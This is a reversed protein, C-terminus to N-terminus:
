YDLALSVFHYSVFFWAMAVCAMAALVDSAKSWWPRSTDRWAVAVEWLPVLTAVVAVLTLLELMRLLGDNATSFQSLDSQGRLLFTLWAGIAIIQLTAVARTLRYLVAARGSYPFPQGYRWRLLAKVPWFIVVLVLTLLASGILPLAVLPSQWFPVPQLVLIQPFLDLSLWRVKGGELRAALLHRGGEEQWVFPATEIWRTPGGLYGLAPVNLVGADDVSTWIPESLTGASMFNTISRRSLVYSGAVLAGDAKANEIARAKQVPPGPFYRDMFRSLLMTRLNTIPSAEAGRSNLSVFLGVNEDLILHLDSHFYQTDGGHGVIEHGNRDEHYFGLAIGPLPSTAQYATRHMLMATAPKLITGSGYTGNQLHAIMFRAIDDGSASLAGAPSMSILEFPKAGDKPLAYGRSMDGTLSSPLPQEFTAHQMGLPAFIHHAVYDEFREGSVRQVIYGALAAGYNSYAPVEGPPYVRVPTKGILSVRLSEKRSPDDIMLDKIREEFGPTHTMLNRLTIPKGFADPIRFDLYANIDKDLDLRGQEVLQMVATWTFLKSVSGPRFLTREPDVPKKAAYDSYGYGKEFLVRGDKVVVFVAGAIKARELADDFFGDFYTSADEATLAHGPTNSPSSGQARAMGCLAALLALGIGLPGISKIM